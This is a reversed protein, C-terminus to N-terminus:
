DKISLVKTGAPKTVSQWPAVDLGTFPLYSVRGPVYLQM